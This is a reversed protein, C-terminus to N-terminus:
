SARNAELRQRIGSADTKFLHGYTDYTITISSHGAWNKVQVPDAGAAIWSSVATHRMAHPTAPLQIGAEKVGPRWIQTRWNAPTM